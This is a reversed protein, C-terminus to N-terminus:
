LQAGLQQGDPCSSSHPLPRWRSHGSRTPLVKLRMSRRCSTPRCCLWTQRPEESAQAQCGSVHLHYYAVQKRASCQELFNPLWSPHVHAARHPPSAAAWQGSLHFGESVPTATLNLPAASLSAARKPPSEPRKFAPPPKPSARAPHLNEERQKAEDGRIMVVRAKVPLAQM